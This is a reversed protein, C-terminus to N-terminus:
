ENRLAEVPDLRAAKVAPYTGFVLGLLVTVFFAIAVIAVDVTYPIVTFGSVVAAIIFGVIMGVFGGIV